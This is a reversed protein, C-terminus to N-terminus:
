ARSDITQLEPRVALIAKAEAAFYIGDACEHVYVRNMGFRDNFLLANRRRRDVVVGHFRGNLNAPFTAEEEYLHVLYSAEADGIHPGRPTLRQPTGPDPYEEGSFVLAVDGTENVYPGGDSFSGERASWGLYIGLDEDIWTRLVYFSEHRMVGMMEALEVRAQPSPMRTVLGVIGPVNAVWGKSCRCRRGCRGRCAAACRRRPTPRLNNSSRM